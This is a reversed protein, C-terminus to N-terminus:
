VEIVLIPTGKFMKYYLQNINSYNNERKIKQAVKSDM